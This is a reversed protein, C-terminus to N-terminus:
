LIAQGLRRDSLGLTPWFIRQACVGHESTQQGPSTQTFEPPGELTLNERHSLLTYKQGKIFSRGKGSVRVYEQKRIKDLAEQLHRIGHFKDYLIAAKPVNKTTSKEFAKWMDMVVLRIKGSKKPSLGQYFLDLSEESRDEGGFWIARRRELDSAVIRYTHGKRLSIEDIGVVPPAPTGCRKLQEQMYRKDLDKVTQWDLREYRAVDQITMKRCQRGVHMAFRKTALANELLWNLTEPKVLGCRKCLVRRIEMELYVPKKACSLDRIRRM